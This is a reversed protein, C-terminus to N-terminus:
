SVAPSGPQLLVAAEAPPKWAASKKRLAYDAQIQRLQERSLYATYSTEIFFLVPGNCIFQYETDEIATIAGHVMGNAEYVYDGANLTGTRVQLKGSRIFTHPASLHKHPPAVYGKLWPLLVVWSGSESGTYLIKTLSRKPDDANPIWDLDKAKVLTDMLESNFPSINQPLAM